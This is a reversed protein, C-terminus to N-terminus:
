ENKGRERIKEITKSIGEKTKEGLKKLEESIGSKAEEFSKKMLRKSRSEKRPKKKGRRGRSRRRPSKIKLKRQVKYSVNSFLVRFPYTILKVLSTFLWWFAKIIKNIIEAVRPAYIAILIYIAVLFILSDLAVLKLWWDQDEIVASANNSGTQKNDVVGLNYIEGNSKFKLRLIKVDSITTWNYEFSDDTDERTYPVEAFSIVWDTKSLAEQAEETFEIQGYDGDFPNVSYKKIEMNIFDGTKQIRSFSNQTKVFMSGDPSNFVVEDKFNWCVYKEEIEGHQWYPIITVMGYKSTQSKYYVSAEIIEDINRDTSFAVFYSDVSGSYTFFLPFFSTDDTIRIYGVYKNEITIYEVYEVSMLSLGNFTFIKGVPYAVESITNDGGPDVDGHDKNFPRLIDSIEYYRISDLRMKFDEVKYKYFQNYSNIYTLSLNRFHNDSDRNFSIDISSARLDGVQGSPQYVYVFLEGNVSEAVTIVELKYFDPNTKSLLPYDDENFNDLSKLDNYANTYEVTEEAAGVTIPLASLMIQLVFLALLVYIIIKKYLKKMKVGQLFIYPPSM